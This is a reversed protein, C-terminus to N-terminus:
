VRERCSARGIEARSLVSVKGSGIQVKKSGGLGGQSLMAAVIGCGVVILVILSYTRRHKLESEM